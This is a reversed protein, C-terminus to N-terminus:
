AVDPAAVEIRRGGSQKARYCAGDADHLVQEVSCNPTSLAVGASFPQAAARGLRGLVDVAQDATTSPLLLVFEDGGSRGLMDSTRLEALWAKTVEALVRDGHQHGFEDNVDKFGDLDIVALCLPHGMRACRAQERAIVPELARRNALGTLPDTRAAANLAQQLLHVVFGVTSTTAVIVAWGAPAGPIHSPLLVAASAGAQAALYLVFIRSPYFSACFITPLVFMETVALAVPSHHAFVVGVDVAALALVSLIYNTWLPTDVGKWINWVGVAAAFVSVGVWGADQVSPGHPLVILLIGVVSGVAWLLASFQAVQRPSILGGVEDSSAPGSPARGSGTRGESSGVRVIAM